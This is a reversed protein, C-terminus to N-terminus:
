QAIEIDQYEPLTKDYVYFNPRRNVVGGHETYTKLDTETMKGHNIETLVVATPTSDVHYYKGDEFQVLNWWHHSTGGIRTVELHTIGLLDFLVVNMAYYTYCDGKGTSLGEYAANWISSKDSTGVYRVNRQTYIYVARIKQDLTMDDKIIKNLVANAMDLVEATTVDQVIIKRPMMTTNGDADTASYVVVYTGETNQDVEHADVSFALEGDQPDTAKVGTKYSISEGVRIYLDELGEFRPADAKPAVEVFTEMTSSNGCADTLVLTIRFRGVMKIYPVTQYTVTVACEDQIDTVLTAPDPIVGVVTYGTVPTATPANREQLAYIVEYERGACVIVLKNEGCRDLPVEGPTMGRFEAEVGPDSVYEGIGPHDIAAGDLPLVRSARQELHFTYLMVQRTCQLQGNSFLLTVTQEGIQATPPTEFFVQIGTGELGSVFDEPKPRVCDALVTGQIQVQGPLELVEEPQSAMMGIAVVMLVALILALGGVLVILGARVRRAKNEVNTESIM